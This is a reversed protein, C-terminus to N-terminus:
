ILHNRLWIHCLPYCFEMVLYTRVSLLVSKYFAARKFPIQYAFKRGTISSRIFIIKQLFYYEIIKVLEKTIKILSKYDVSKKNTSSNGAFYNFKFLSNRNFRINRVTNMRQPNMGTWPATRSKDFRHNVLVITYALYRFSVVEFHFNRFSHLSIRTPHFFIRKWMSVFDVNIILPVHLQLHSSTILSHGCEHTRHLNEIKKEIIEM